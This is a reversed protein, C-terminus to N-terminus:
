NKTSPVIKKILRRQEMLNLIHDTMWGKKKRTGETKLYEDKIKDVVTKLDELQKDIPSNENFTNEIKNNIEQINGLVSPEKMMKLNYKKYTKRKIKKLRIKFDGVVPIHDSNLDAGPFTRVRTCSNRFRKNILIYDIQNRIIREAKSLPSIWTYLKRPHMKFQTNLVVLENEEVFLEMTDGRQNREGLGNPGIYNTKFGAGIKANFDGMTITSDQKPLTKIIDKICGYLEDVEENSKDTTPAYIQIININVPRAELQLVIVRESVPIFNKVSRAVEQTVIIGVGFEFKGNTTGSYYTKHKDIQIMGTGPWRMESIGLIDINMRKMEKIANNIKGQQAMTRANWTGIRIKRRTDLPNATPSSKVAEGPSGIPFSVGSNIKTKLMAM